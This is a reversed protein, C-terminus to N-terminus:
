IGSHTHGLVACFGGEAGGRESNEGRARSRLPAASKRPALASWPPFIPGRLSCLTLKRRTWIKMLRRLVVCGGWPVGWSCGAARDPAREGEPAGSFSLLAFPCSATVARLGVGGVAIPLVAGVGWM